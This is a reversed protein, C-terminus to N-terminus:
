LPWSLWTALARQCIHDPEASLMAFALMWLEMPWQKDKSTLTYAHPDPPIHVTRGVPFVAAPGKNLAQMAAVAPSKQVAREQLPKSAMDRPSGSVPSLMQEWTLSDGHSDKM